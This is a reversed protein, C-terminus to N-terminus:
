CSPRRPDQGAVGPRGQSSSGRCCRKWGASRRTAKSKVAQSLGLVLAGSTWCPPSAAIVAAAGPTCRSGVANPCRMVRDPSPHAGGPGQRRCSLRALVATPKGFQVLLGSVDGVLADGRLRRVRRVPGAHPLARSESPGAGPRRARVVSVSALSSVRKDATLLDQSHCVETCSWML